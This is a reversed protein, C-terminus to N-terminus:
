RLARLLDDGTSIPGGSSTILTRGDDAVALDTEGVGPVVVRMMNLHDLNSNLSGRFTTDEFVTAYATDSYIKLASALQDAQGQSLLNGGYTETSINSVIMDLDSTSELNSRIQQKKTAEDARKQEYRRSAARARAVKEQHVAKRYEPDKILRVVHKSYKILFHAVLLFIAWGALFNAVNLWAIIPDEGAFLSWPIALCVTIAILLFKFWKRRKEKKM